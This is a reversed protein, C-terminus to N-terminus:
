VIRKLRPLEDLRELVKDTQEQDECVVVEVEGHGLVYAVENAPSTAYVGVAVAGVMGAGLQAVVWEARNESLIGLHGGE